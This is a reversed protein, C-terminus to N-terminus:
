GHNKVTLYQKRIIEKTKLVRQEADPTKIVTHNTVLGSPSKFELDADDYESKTLWVVDAKNSAKRVLDGNENKHL